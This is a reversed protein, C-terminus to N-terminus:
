WACASPNKGFWPDSTAQTGVSNSTPVPTGPGWHDAVTHELEQVGTMVDICLVTSGPPPNLYRDCIETM